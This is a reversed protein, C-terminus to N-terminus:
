LKKTAKLMGVMAEAMANATKTPGTLKFFVNGEPAELVAGVMTYNDKKVTAGSMMGGANYSGNVKILHVKMGDATMEGKQVFSHPDAGEALEMQGVWRDLNNAITGGGGEGFYFVTVTASDTEGELASFAYSAQRMGSPGFDTWESAPTFIIGALETSTGKLTFTVGTSELVFDGAVTPTSQSNTKSTSEDAKKGCSVIIMASLATFVVLKFFSKM